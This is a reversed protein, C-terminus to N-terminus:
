PGITAVREADALSPLHEPRFQPRICAIETRLPATTVQSSANVPVGNLPTVPGDPSRQVPMPPDIAPARYRRCRLERAANTTALTRATTTTPQV